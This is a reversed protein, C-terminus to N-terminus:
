DVVNYFKAKASICSYENDHGKNKVNAGFILIKFFFFFLYYSKLIYTIITYIFYLDMIKKVREDIVM